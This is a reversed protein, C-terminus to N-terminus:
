EKKLINYITGRSVNYVSSLESPNQGAKSKVMIEKKQDASLKGPRGMHKGKAKAAAIGEAQREKIMAREFQAFSGLVNFLLDSMASDEGNGFILSEKHFTISTGLSVVKKVLKNLDEINRALRDISLVNIQDGEGPRIYDFLKQLEPRKTTVGSAKDIFVKDANPLGEIQRDPNQDISSVRIYNIVKGM